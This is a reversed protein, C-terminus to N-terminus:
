RKNLSSKSLQTCISRSKATRDPDSLYDHLWNCGRALLQDLTEVSWLQATGAEGVSAIQQGDPRFSVGLISGGSGRFEALLQGSQTWLRVTGGAGATILQQGNPSFSTSWIVGQFGKFERHQHGALDWLHVTGDAGATVLQQGNPSFSVSFVSGQHGKFDAIAQGSQTWLRVTGDDGATAIKQGDPSFSASWVPGQHGKFVTLLQGSHNWLRVAGDYGTTVFQQGNPSFGVSLVRNPSREFQHVKFQAIADGSRTWLRVTGDDGATAIQQGDPSFSVGLVAGQQANFTMLRQGSTNWLHVIGDDGTTALRKGEASFSVSRVVGQHNILPVFARHFRNWLHVTGEDGATAIQQGDPSFSASWIRGDHGKLTSLLEPQGGRFTWFRIKADEGVAVIQQGDPSFSASLISGEGSAFQYLRQGSRTWISVMGNDGAILVEEGKPSFSVSWIRGNHGSFEKLKEGSLSWLRATGNGASADDGATIIQQGDPSFSVSLVVQHANFKAIQSSSRSWVRVTGDEGGTVIQQGNPSFSVSNVNGQHGKLDAILEGSITWLRATGDGGATVIQQGNPSFGLSNVTGQHSNFEKIQQGSRSWVRIVGDTNSTAIRQSDPSFSVSLVSSRDRSLQNHEEVQDLLTQLALLPSFAPYNELSRDKAVAKLRQGVQVASVLAELQQSEFQAIANVSERELQVGMQAEAQAIKATKFDGQAILVQQQATKAQQQAANAQHQALQRKQEAQTTAVEATRVKTIATQIQQQTQQAIAVLKTNSAIVAQNAAQVRSQALNLRSEAVNVQQNAAQTKADAVRRITETQTTVTSVKQDAEVVKQQAQTVARGGLVGAIASGILTMVLVASGIRIRARAKREAAALIQNAQEAATRAQKETILAGEVLRRELEQSAALYQYDRDGLSKGEAWAQADRLAQGRLLRSEDQGKSEFWADLTTAYPRLATLALDLWTQNFVQAYVPNYVKLKGDCKVVLGTLRLEMQEPSGDTEIGDTQLVQQYLGLLRGSRQESRLIRDRITKLHEPTDQAEWNDIIKSQVLHAVWDSPSSIDTLPHAATEQLILRCVKQTLFPQGGTWDLTAQLIPDPDPLHAALGRSLPQVEPLQFGSLEIARGINFPTRRKDQILDSPTAVGILAFTLRCYDPNDARNNYCDRIVAFFDDINFSLSLVSDIEDVFIVISGSIAQLLVEEIFKSLRQVPSLLHHSTWWTELDFATYLNLSSVISDIVGAYWQEITVEWSGIATIDIAACAIKESQLRQMTQVRLSSKGMQRSNLVYCFEGAKLGNYFDQDAQRPVYTLADAPLSGGVQYQYQSM